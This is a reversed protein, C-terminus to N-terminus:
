PTPAHFDLKGVFLERQDLSDIRWLRFQRNRDNFRHSVFKLKEPINGILPRQSIPSTQM